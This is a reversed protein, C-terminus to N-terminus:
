PSSIQRACVTRRDEGAALGLHDRHRSETRSRILLPEVRDARDLVLPVHVVVVERRVADALGSEHAARTPAVDTVARQGLPRQQRDEWRLLFERVRDADDGVDDARVTRARHRADAAARHRQHVGTHRDALRDGTDRHAQDGIVGTPVRNQGVDLAELIVKAVHVELDGAGGIAHGRDLHVDLDLPQGDLDQPLRERLCTVTPLKM